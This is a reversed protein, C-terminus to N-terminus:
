GFFSAILKEWRGFGSVKQPNGYEVCHKVRPFRWKSLHRNGSTFLTDLPITSLLHTTKFTPLVYDCWIKPRNLPLPLCPFSKLRIFCLKRRFSRNKMATRIRVASVGTIEVSRQLATTSATYRRSCVSRYAPSLNSTCLQAHAVLGGM